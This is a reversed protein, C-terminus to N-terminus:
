AAGDQSPLVVRWFRRLVLATLHKQGYFFGERPLSPCHNRLSTDRKAGQLRAVKNGYPWSEHYPYWLGLREALDKKAGILEGSLGDIMAGCYLMMM